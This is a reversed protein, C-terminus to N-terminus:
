FINQNKNIERMILESVLEDLTKNQSRAFSRVAFAFDSSVRLNIKCGRMKRRMIVGQKYSETQKNTICNQKLMNQSNEYPTVIRLNSKRNDLTNHNIHDVVMGHPCDMILRHMSYNKGNMTGVVYFLNNGCKNIRWTNPLSNVKDFDEKDIFTWMTKENKVRIFIVIGNDGVFYNNKM